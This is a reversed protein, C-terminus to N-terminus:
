RGEDRFTVVRDVQFTPGFGLPTHFFLWDVEGEVRLAIMPVGGSDANPIGTATMAQGTNQEIQTEVAQEIAAWQTVFGSGDRASPPLAAAARAGDRAAHTVLNVIMWARGFEVIGLGLFVFLVIVIGLEALAQGRTRRRPTRLTV